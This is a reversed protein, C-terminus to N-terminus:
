RTSIKMEYYKEKEAQVIEPQYNRVLKKLSKQVTKDDQPVQALLAAVADLKIMENREFYPYQDNTYGELKFNKIIKHETLESVVRSSFM